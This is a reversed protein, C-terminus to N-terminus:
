GRTALWILYRQGKTGHGRVRIEEATFGVQQLRKTFRPDPDAAWVALIGKPRLAAYASRLGNMGYLRDNTRSTLGAPGNDVDLLIADFGGKEGAIVQAVDAERITVRPDDLAGNSVHALPGRHWRVVAPVLESIMVESKATVNKLVAMLTYGMGLGGVLVRVNGHLRACVLDALADESGHERNNMLEHHGIRISFEGGRRFLRMNETEGPIVTTDLLEWPIM